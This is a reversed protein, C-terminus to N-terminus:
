CIDMGPLARYDLTAPSAPRAATENLWSRLWSDAARLGTPARPRAPRPGVIVQGADAARAFKRVTHRTLGLMQCIQTYNRGQALLDHIATHRERSRVALRGEGRDPGPAPTAAEAAPAGSGPGASPPVDPEPAPERLDARCAIVTKEVADCLNQWLPFRDAVQIAGPAGDRAGEAYGGARDRCIVQVGPHQNLWQAFTGATACRCCAEEGALRHQV